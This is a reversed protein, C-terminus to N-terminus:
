KFLNNTSCCYRCIFVSFLLQLSTCETFYSAFGRKSRPWVVYTNSFFPNITLQRRAADRGRAFDRRLQRLQKEQQQFVSCDLVDLSAHYRLITEYATIAEAITPPPTEDELGDTEDLDNSDDVETFAAAVSEFITELSETEQEEPPEIFNDSAQDSALIKDLSM